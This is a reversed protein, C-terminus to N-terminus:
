NLCSPPKKVFTEQPLAKSHRSIIGWIQRLGPDELSELYGIIGSYQRLYRERNGKALLENLEDAPPAIMSVFGPLSQAIVIGRPDFDVFAFVPLGLAELLMKSHDNRYCAPDGRFLILPNGEIGQILDVYDSDEFCEWNEIVLVSDHRAHEAVWRWNVDLNSGPPLMLDGQALKLPKGALTKIAVREDRVRRNTDKENDSIQSTEARTLDNLSQPDTRWDMGGQSLLIAKIREIETLTFFLKSGQRRGLGFEECFYELGKSCPYEQRAGQCIHLLTIKLSKQM